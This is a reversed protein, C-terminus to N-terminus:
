GLVGPLVAALGRRLLGAREGPARQGRGPLQRGQGAHRFVAPGRVAVRDRGQRVRHRGGGAGGGAPLRRVVAGCEAAGGCLGLDLVHHVAAAASSRGGAARGDAADVQAARRDAARACVARRGGAPGQAAARRADGRRFGAAPAPGGRDGSPDHRSLVASGPLGVRGLLTSSPGYLPRRPRCAATM